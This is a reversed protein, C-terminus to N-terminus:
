SCIGWPSYAHIPLNKNFTSMNGIEDNLRRKKLVSINKSFHDFM